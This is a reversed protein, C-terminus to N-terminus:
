GESCGTFIVGDFGDDEALGTDIGGDGVTALVGEEDPNVGVFANGADAFDVGQWGDDFGDDVGWRRM